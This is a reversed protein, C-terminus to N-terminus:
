NINALEFHMGDRRSKFHGGWYFGQRHASPVLDFVCGKEGPWAPETGLSNWEVNIDFASGFAHNSLKERSGRIFRPAFSGGWSLIRDRLGASQVEAVFAKFRPAVLRHLSVRGSVPFGEIGIWEPVAITVINRAVWDGSIRIAEPNGPEPASVYDFKGFIRQRAVIGLLPPFKPEKPYGNGRESVYDVLELGMLAAQGWSQNGVVGDVALQQQQQFAKTALVTAADFEGSVEVNLNQGRLFLQWKKVLAGSAGRKLLQM